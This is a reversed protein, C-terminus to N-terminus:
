GVCDGKGTKGRDEFNAKAGKVGVAKEELRVFRDAIEESLKRYLRDEMSSLMRDMRDLVVEDLSNQQVANQVIEAPTEDETSVISDSLNEKCDLDALRDQQRHRHIIISSEDNSAASSSGSAFRDDRQRSATPTMQTSHSRYVTRRPIRDRTKNDLVSLPKIVAETKVGSFTLNLAKKKSNISNGCITTVRTLENDQLNSSSSLMIASPEPFCDQPTTSSEMVTSLPVKSTNSGDKSERMCRTQQEHTNQLHRRKLSNTREARNRFHDDKQKQWVISFRTATQPEDPNTNPPQPWELSAVDPTRSNSHSQLALLNEQCETNCSQVNDVLVREPNTSQPLVEQQKEPDMIQAIRAPSKAPVNQNTYAPTNRREEPADPQHVVSNFSPSKTQSIKPVPPLPTRPPPTTPSGLEVSLSAIKKIPTSPGINSLLSERNTSFGSASTRQINSNGGIVDNGATASGCSKIPAAIRRSNELSTFDFSTSPNSTLALSELDKMLPRPRDLVKQRLRKQGSLKVPSALQKSHKASSHTAPILRSEVSSRSTPDQLVVIPLASRANRINRPSASAKPSYLRRSPTSQIKGPSSRVSKTSRRRGWSKILDSAPFATGATLDGLQPVDGIDDSQLIAKPTQLNSNNAVAQPQSTQNCSSRLVGEDITSEFRKSSRGRREEDTHSCTSKEQSISPQKSSSSTVKRARIRFRPKLRTSTSHLHSSKGPGSRQDLNPKQIPGRHGRTEDVDHRQFQYNVRFTSKTELSDFQSSDRVIRYYQQTQGPVVQRLVICNHPFQPGSSIHSYINLSGRQSPNSRLLSKFFSKRRSNRSSGGSIRKPDSLLAEAPPSIDRLFQRLAETACSDPRAERPIKRSPQSDRGEENALSNTLSM